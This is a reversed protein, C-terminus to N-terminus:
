KLYHTSPETTSVSQKRSHTNCHVYRCPETHQQAVSATKEFGTQRSAKVQLWNPVASLRCTVVTSECVCGVVNNFFVLSATVNRRDATKYNSLLYLSFQKKKYNEKKATPSMLSVFQSFSSHLKEKELSFFNGLM